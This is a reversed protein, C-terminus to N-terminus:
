KEQDRDHLWLSKMERRWHVLEKYRLCMEVRKREGEISMKFTVGESFGQTGRKLGVPDAESKDWEQLADQEKEKHSQNITVYKSIGTPNIGTKRM